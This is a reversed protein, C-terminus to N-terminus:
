RPNEKEVPSESVDAQINVASRAPSIGARKMRNSFAVPRNLTSPMTRPTFSTTGMIACCCPGCRGMKQSREGSMRFEADFGYHEIDGIAFVNYAPERSLFTLAIHRDAETLKRFM